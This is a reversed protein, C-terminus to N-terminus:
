KFDITLTTRGYTGLEGLPRKRRPKQTLNKHANRMEMRAEHQVWRM